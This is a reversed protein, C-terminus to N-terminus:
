LLLSAYETMLAVCTPLSIINFIETPTQGLEVNAEDTKYNM